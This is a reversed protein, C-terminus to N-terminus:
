LARPCTEGVKVFSQARPPPVTLLLVALCSVSWVTSGMVFASVSIVLQAKLALFTSPCSGFIKEPVKRWVHAGVKLNTGADSSIHCIGYANGTIYFM